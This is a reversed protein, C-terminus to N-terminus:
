LWITYTILTIIVSASNNIIHIILPITLDNERAYIFNLVISGPLYLLVLHITYGVDNSLVQSVGIHAFTFIVTVILAALNRNLRGLLKSILGYRFVYEEVIPLWIAIATILIFSPNSTLAQNLVQENEGLDNRYELFLTKDVFDFAIILVWTITLYILFKKFFQKPENKIRIIAAKIQRRYKYILVLVFFIATLGFAELLYVEFYPSDIDINHPAAIILGIFAAVVQMCFYILCIAIGKLENKIVSM